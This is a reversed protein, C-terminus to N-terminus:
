LDVRETKVTADIISILDNETIETAKIAGRKSAPKEHSCIDILLFFITKNNHLIFPISQEQSALSFRVEDDSTKFIILYGFPENYDQTYIYIQNFANSLYEKGKGKEPNYIKADAILPYEGTQSSVLDAEGSASLPEIYFDLGQDYLYEYLNLALSKEGRRTDDQWLAFLEERKFWECKHKYRKLLALIARQDDLQEDIYEHLPELFIPRFVDLVDDYKKEHSYASGANIEAHQNESEVCLKIVFHSLAANEIEDDVVISQHGKVVKSAEEELAPYRRELDQLIGVIIPQSQLFGWFQLLSYHFVLFGASNLRRIRKQLKYRLNQVYDQNM